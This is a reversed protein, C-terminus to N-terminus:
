PTTENLKQQIRKIARTWCGSCTTHPNLHPLCYKNHIQAFEIREAETKNPKSMLDQIRNREENTMM